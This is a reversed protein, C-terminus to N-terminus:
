PSSWLWSSSPYHPLCAAPVYGAQDRRLGAAPDPLSQVVFPSRQRGALGGQAGGSGAQKQGLSEVGRRAPSGRQERSDRPKAGGQGRGAPGSRPCCTSQM